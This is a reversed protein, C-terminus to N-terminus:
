IQVAMNVRGKVWEPNAPNLYKAYVPKRLNFGVDLSCQLRICWLITRSYSLPFNSLYPLLIYLILYTRPPSVTLYLQPSSSVLAVLPLYEPFIYTETIRRHRNTGSPYDELSRRREMVPSRSLRPNIPISLSIITPSLLLYLAHQRICTTQPVRHPWSPTFPPSSNYLTPLDSKSSLLVTPPREGKYQRLIGKALHSAMPETTTQCTQPILILSSSLYSTIQHQHSSNVLEQFSQPVLPPTM